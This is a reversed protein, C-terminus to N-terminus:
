GLISSEFFNTTLGNWRKKPFKSIAWHEPENQEIWTALSDNYLCLENIHAIYEM